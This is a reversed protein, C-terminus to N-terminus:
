SAVCELDALAAPRSSRRTRGRGGSWPRVGASVAGAPRRRVRGATGGRVLDGVLEPGLRHAVRVPLGPRRLQVLGRGAAGAHGVRGPHRRHDRRAPRPLVLRAALRHGAAARGAPHLPPLRGAGQPHLGGRGGRGARGTGRGRGAAVVSPPKPVGVAGAPELSAVWAAKIAPEDAKPIEEWGLSRWHRKVGDMYAFYREADPYAGPIVFRRFQM